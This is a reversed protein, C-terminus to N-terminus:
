SPEYLFSAHIGLVNTLATLYLSIPRSPLTLTYTMNTGTALTVGAGITQGSAQDQVAVFFTGSAGDAAVTLIGKGNKCTPRWIVTTNNPITGTGVYWRITAYGDTGTGYTTPVPTFGTNNMDASRFIYKPASITKYSGVCAFHLTGSISANGYVIVWMDQHKTSTQYTGYAGLYGSGMTGQDGIVFSEDNYVYLTSADATQVGWWIDVRRYNDNNSEDVGWITVSQYKSVGPVKYIMVQTSGSAAAIGTNRYNFLSTNSDIPPAGSLSISSAIQNALGSTILASAVAQGNTFLGENDVVNVQVSTGATAVHIWLGKHPDWEISSGPPLTIGSLTTDDSLVISNVLDLNSIQTATEYGVPPIIQVPNTDNITWTTASM